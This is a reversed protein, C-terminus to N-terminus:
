RFNHGDYLPISGGLTDIIRREFKFVTKALLYGFQM